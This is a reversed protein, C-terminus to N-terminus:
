STADRSPISVANKMGRTLSRLRQKKFGDNSSGCWKNSRTASCCLLTSERSLSRGGASDSLLRMNAEEENNDNSSVAVCSIAAVGGSQGTPTAHGTSPTHSAHEINRSSSNVQSTTISLSPTIQLFTCTIYTLLLTSLPPTPHSPAILFSM